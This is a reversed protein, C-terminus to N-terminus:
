LRLSLGVTGTNVNYDHYAATGSSDDDFHDFRLRLAVRRNLVYDAGLSIQSYNDNRDITDYERKGRRYEGYLIVNRLLEHDAHIGVETDIYPLGVNASVEASANRSAELSITTLETVFWDLNGEVALGDFTKLGNFDRRFYGAALEGRFLDGNLTAGALYLQGDSSLGPSHEYDRHDVTADALLGIRPSLDFTIRGHGATQTNDRFSQVGDYSYKSGSIDGEVRFRVFRQDIGISGDTRDYAVPGGVSPNDPDTRPTVQHAIRASANISTSTGIDLRGSGHLYGTNADESSFDRHQTFRGGADIVLANRSWDSALRLTPAEAYIFDDVATSSSAAFLNDTSAVYLDLSANLKFAGFRMGLPDYEPHPRDRVSVPHDSQAATQQNQTQAIAPVPALAILLAGFGSLFPRHRM